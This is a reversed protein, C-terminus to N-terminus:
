RAALLRARAITVSVRDGAAPAGAAAASMKLISGGETRLALEVRGGLFSRASVTASFGPGLQLDEPRIALCLAGPDAGAAEPSEGDLEVLARIGDAAEVTWGQGPLPDISRVSLLNVPGLAEAVYRDRPARYLAEPRGVQVIAGARMVAIRDATSLAEAQDHTVLLVTVGLRARLEALEGRMEDRLRADLNSLPEDLLLVEPEAVLARALAVRQQQGGSLEHPYRGALGELRVWALARAARARVEASGARRNARRLPYAVNELVTRHPWVAYSQFVMGLQRAEPPVHAGSASSFVVREGLRIEGADPAELGAVLRLLTSKGSGSPGLLAVFEGAEIDLDVGGLVLVRGFSKAVARLEVRAAV